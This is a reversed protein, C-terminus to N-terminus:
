LRIKSNIIMRWVVESKKCSDRIKKIARGKNMALILLSPKKKCSKRESTKDQQRTLNITKM